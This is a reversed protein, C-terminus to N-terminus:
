LHDCCFAQGNPHDVIDALAHLDLRAEIVRELLFPAWICIRVALLHEMHLLLACDQQKWQVAFERSHRTM